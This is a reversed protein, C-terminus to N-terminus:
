IYLTAKGLTGRLPLDASSFGVEVTFEGAVVSWDHTTVDWISLDRDTLNFAVDRQSGAALHVKEFGRLQRPPEGAVEPFTLYLQVVEAADAAGTNALTASVVRGAVNLNSVQFTSYTLGHGFPFKPAVKHAHYWRYGVELKESYTANYCTRWGVSCNGDFEIGPYQAPTLGTENERNPITLSLKGSPSARGLILDSVASGQEQGSMFVALLSAVKDSWPALFAGPSATVVITNPQVAAVAYVLDEGPLTLGDRDRGEGSTAALVVVAYGAAQAAAAAQAPSHGGFYSVAGDGLSERLADLVTRQYPGVVAGSGTGGTIANDHGASGIVAVGAQRAKESVLPLLGDNKLLVASETAIRRALAAHEASTVNAKISMPRPRDLAGTSIMAYLVNEVKAGVTAEPVEGARVADLLPKGFYNPRQANGVCALGSPDSASPTTCGPLQMDLGGLAAGLTTQGGRYDTCIFGKFGFWDRLLTNQAFGSECIHVGNVLNNGCMVSLVGAQVAGEFPGFYMEVQTREDVNSSTSHRDGAGGEGHSNQGEQNNDIYHKANAIVGQSQIGKVLPQVLIRGLFPDEGSLYEFNRGNTPVRHLNVAPGFLVNAGKGRFEAAMAAGWLGMLSADWSMAATMGSPWQTTTKPSGGDRFGQPGDQLRIPPIGLRPLGPVCGVYGGECGEATSNGHTLAVKEELTMKGVLIRACEAPTASGCVGPAAVAAPAWMSVALLLSAHLM